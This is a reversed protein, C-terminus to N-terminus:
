GGGVPRMLSVTDGDSLVMDDFYRRGNVLAVIYGDRGIGLHNWLGAVTTGAPLTVARAGGSKGCGAGVAGAQGGGDCPLLEGHLVVEINITGAAAGGGERGRGHGCCTGVDDHARELHVREGALRPEGVGGSSGSSGSGGAQTAPEFNLAEYLAQYALAEVMDLRYAASGRIDSIPSASKRALAALEKLRADAPAPGILARELETARRVTPAVSGLAVRARVIAEGALSLAVAVGAISISLAKRQGLKRYAWRRAASASGSAGAAAGAAGAVGGAAAGAPLMFGTVVEGVALVTKGPGTFFREVPVARAGGAGDIHVVADLCMLAPITDGAPSATVVNGGITGRNRIQPSGVTSCAAALLPARERVAASAMVQAHTAGAGVWLGEADRWEISCLEPLGDIAVLAPPRAAGDKMKVVLDTGGAILAAGTESALLSVAEDVSRARMVKCSAFCETM